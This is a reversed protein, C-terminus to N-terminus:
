SAGTIEQAMKPISHELTAQSLYVLSDPKQFGIHYLIPIEFYFLDLSCMLGTQVSAPPNGPL